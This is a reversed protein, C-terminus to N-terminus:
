RDKKLFVFFINHVPPDFKLNVDLVACGHNM